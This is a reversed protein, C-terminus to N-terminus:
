FVLKRIDNFVVFIMLLILISFGALQIKEMVKQNIPRGIIAEYIFFLIYSGDVAPIPLLNMFMLIISIKAILIIFASIGEYYAVDGALKAIGIPGSINKMANLKGSILMGIGKINISLFDIPDKFAKVLALGLGYKVVKTQPSVVTQCGIQGFSKHQIYGEYKVGNLKFTTKYDEGLIKIGKFLNEMSSVKVGGLEVNGLSLGLKVMEMNTIKVAGPEVISKIQTRIIIEDIQKPTVSLTMMKRGRMLALKVSKGANSKIVDVFYEPNRIDLNNIKKIEDIAKLGAQAAPSDKIVAAVLVKEGYPVVGIKYHESGAMKIPSITTEKEQGGRLYKVVLQKGESFFVNSLIDSFKYIKEGNIETIIDKDKLGAQHAPSILKGKTLVEPIIIMNTKANYGVLNMVFFIFIGLFLNFLPGMIVTVIRRWPSATLFEYEKGEREETADEGYFSCYGGFPIATIQYTTDGWKRKIIGKGYGLSFVRAKIGVMKGGLLHGLEHIFICIGLLIVIALTYIVIQM